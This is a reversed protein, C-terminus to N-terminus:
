GEQDLWAMVHTAAGVQEGRQNRIDITGFSRMKETDFKEVTYVVTVTDGVKVPGLFRVKDYGLSIPLYRSGREAYRASIMSSTTSAFALTLAGHAIRGGFRTKSAYEEDLHIGDFDGTIGAFQYIDSEAVTKSFRAEAGIDVPYESM